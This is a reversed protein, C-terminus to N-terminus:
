RGVTVVRHESPGSRIAVVLVDVYLLDAGAAGQLQCRIPVFVIVGDPRGIALLNGEKSPRRSRRRSYSTALQTEYRRQASGFPFERIYLRLIEIREARKYGPHPYCTM